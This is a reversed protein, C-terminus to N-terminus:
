FFKGLGLLNILPLFPHFLLFFLICFYLSLGGLKRMKYVIFTHIDSPIFLFVFSM